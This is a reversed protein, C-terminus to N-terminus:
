FAPNSLVHVSNTLMLRPTFVLNGQIPLTRVDSFLCSSSSRIEFSTILSAILRSFLSCFFCSCSPDCGHFFLLTISFLFIWQLSLDFGGVHANLNLLQPKQPLAAWGILHCFMLLLVTTRDSHFLNLNAAQSGFSSPLSLFFLSPSALSKQITCYKVPECELSSPSASESCLQECICGARLMEEELQILCNSHLCVSVWSARLSREDFSREWTCVFHSRRVVLNLNPSFVSDLKVLALIYLPEMATALPCLEALKGSVSSVRKDKYSQFSAATSWFINWVSM